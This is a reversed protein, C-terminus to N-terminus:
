FGKRLIQIDVDPSNFVTIYRQCLWPRRLSRYSVRTKEKKAGIGKLITYVYTVYTEIDLYMQMNMLLHMFTNESM